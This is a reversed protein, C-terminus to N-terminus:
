HFAALAEDVWSIGKDRRLELLYRVLDVIKTHPNDNDLANIRMGRRLALRLSPRLELFVQASSKEYNPMYKKLKSLMVGGSSKTGAGVVPADSDEFHLFVWYEFCPNSTIAEMKCVKSASNVLRTHACKTIAAQYDPHGDRDFVCFIRDYDKSLKFKEIAFDVVTMPSSGCQEGLVLINATGLRLENRLSSFYHPETKAGECVILVVDVPEREQREVRVERGKRARSKM